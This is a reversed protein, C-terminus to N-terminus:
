NLLYVVEGIVQSGSTAGWFFTEMDVKNTSSNKVLECGKISSDDDAYFVCFRLATYTPM